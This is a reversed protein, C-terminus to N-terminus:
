VCVCVCFLYEKASSLSFSKIASKIMVVTVFRLDDDLGILAIPPLVHLAGATVGDDRPKEM